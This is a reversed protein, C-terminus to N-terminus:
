GENVRTAPRIGPYSEYPAYSTVPARYFNAKQRFRWKATRGREELRHELEHNALLLSRNLGLIRMAVRVPATFRNPELPKSM